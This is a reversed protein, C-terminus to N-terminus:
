DIDPLGSNNYNTHSDISTVLDLLFRELDEVSDFPRKGKSVRSKNVITLDVATQKSIKGKVFSTFVKPADEIDYSGLINAMSGGASNRVWKEKKIITSEESENANKLKWKEVDGIFRKWVRVTKWESRRSDDVGKVKIDLLNYLIQSYYIGLNDIHGQLLDYVVQNAFERKFRTEFRIWAWLLHERGKSRQEQLKDYITLRKNSSISGLYITNGNSRDESSNLDFSGIFSGNRFPTYIERREIKTRIWEMTIENDNKLDGAIDIRTFRYGGSRVLYDLLNFWNGNRSEFDRCASGTMELMNYPNDEEDKSGDFLITTNEGLIIKHKFRNRGFDHVTVEEETYGLLNILNLIFPHKYTEEYENQLNTNEFITNFTFTFSLYDILVLNEISKV